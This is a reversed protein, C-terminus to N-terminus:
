PISEYKASIIVSVKGSIRKPLFKKFIYRKNRFQALFSHIGKSASIAYPIKSPAKQKEERIIREMEDRKGNVDKFYKYNILDRAYSAMPQVYRAIIEDLDEYSENNIYLQHGLSFANDKGEERIDIHQNIGEHVKWTLTLHDNAKSSPRILAEGQDMNLLMNEAQKFDINHFSPHVIIRKIYTQRNQRKKHEEEAKTDKDEAEYCYYRDKPPRFTFNRDVLDSTRCTLDVAFREVIIKLVRCHITMGIRVRELPNQVEKDSIFKTPVMGILGNDLRVRIGIAQGPCTNADFHNWVESLEPFDDKCCFPCKWLGTEDNRTPNESDYQDTQPKKRAVSVVQCLVLKGIFFSDHTEKTLMQFIEELNPSRYPTRLDKYRNTLEARIDYLTISKLGMGQRMLEDAFADLDLDKLKEPNDIIEELAQAPNTDNDEDYELADVAMKRAWEYAEPHVRTSDLVEIYTDTGSDSLSSTDIKIFGACNIFVVKGINCNQVLQTRNELLPTQQKKLTRILYAGKRPGLGGIFQVLQSTHPHVICRNIDVGVENVRNVFELYINTLLDDKPLHEQLPHFKICLIEEDATCLQSFEILPDQLRRALSIAQRLYPPYNHFDIMAKKSNMYVTSLENDVFEVQIQPFQENENLETIIAKIDEVVNRTIITDCGVAIVHPKKALIFKKLKEKDKERSHKEQDTSWETRKLMFYELKLYDTVEGDGDIMAAFSAEDNSPVFSFGMIRIGERTDFDEDDEIQIDSNVHFPAM